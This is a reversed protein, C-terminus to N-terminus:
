TPIELNSHSEESKESSHDEELERAGEHISSVVSIDGRSEPFMNMESVPYKEESVVENEHEEESIQNMEPVRKTIFGREDLEIQDFSIPEFNLTKPDWKRTNESDPMIEIIKTERRSRRHSVKKMLRNELRKRKKYSMEHTFFHSSGVFYRDDTKYRFYPADHIETVNKFTGIKKM